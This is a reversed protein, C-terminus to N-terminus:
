LQIPKAGKRAAPNRTRQALMMVIDDVHDNGSVGEAELAAVVSESGPQSQLHAIYGELTRIPEHGGVVLGVNLIDLEHESQKRTAAEERDVAHRREAAVKQQYSEEEREAELDAAEREESDLIDQEAAAELSRLRARNLVSRMKDRKLEGVAWAAALVIACVLTTGM